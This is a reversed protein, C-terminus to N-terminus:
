FFFFFIPFFIRVVDLHCLIKKGDSDIVGDGILKPIGCVQSFTAASVTCFVATKIGMKRGIELAWGMFVDAIICTIRNNCDLCAIDRILTELLRPMNREMSLLMKAHNLRDDDAELGDPISVFRLAATELDFPSDTKQDAAQSGMIRKHNFETNVFTIRFGQEVLKHSLSLFPNIHGQAPYPLVLVNPTSSM